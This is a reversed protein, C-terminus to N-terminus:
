RSASATEVSAPQAHDAFTQAPRQGCGRIAPSAAARAPAATSRHPPVRNHSGPHPKARAPRGGQGSSRREPRVRARAKIGPDSAAPPRPARVLMAGSLGTRRAPWAAQEGRDMCRGPLSLRSKVLGRDPQPSMMGLRGLDPLAPLDDIPPNRSHAGSSRRRSAVPQM